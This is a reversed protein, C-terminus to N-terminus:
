RGTTERQEGNNAEMPLDASGQFHFVISVEQGLSVEQFASSDVLGYLFVRVARFFNDVSNDNCSSRFSLHTSGERAM